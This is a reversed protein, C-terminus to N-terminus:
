ARARAVCEKRPLVVTLLSVVDKCSLSSLPLPSQHTVRIHMSGQSALAPALSGAFAVVARGWGSDKCCLQGWSQGLDAHGAPVLVPMLLSDLHAM